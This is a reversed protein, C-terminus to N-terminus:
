TRTDGPCEYRRVFVVQQQRESRTGHLTGGMAGGYHNCVGMLDYVNPEEHYGEVYKGLDVHRGPPCEGDRQEKM